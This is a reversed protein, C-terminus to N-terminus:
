KTSGNPLLEERILKHAAEKDHQSLLGIASLIYHKDIIFHAQKPLLAQPKEKNYLTYPLLAAVRKTHLLAGGTFLVTSTKRMDKGRQVLAMGTSTYVEQITGVHRQAATTIAGAALAFDLDHWADSDPVRSVESTLEDLMPLAENSHLGSVRCLWDLGTAEAIGKANHRMGIDGEVSRKIYPEPLGKYLVGAQSPMGDGVSYVDTTAGGVDFCLMEGIIEGCLEVARMVAVPTPMLIGNILSQTKSLGKAKVIRDLFIERIKEQAPEIQLTDLQPMVNKVIHCTKGHLIKECQSAVSRNGAIVIPFDVECTSLMQANHLICQKNGGDTGGTLLFIEPKAQTIEDVDDETLEYAYSKILKAGASLSAMKAAQATLEPVLGCAMMRLGGAASSCAYTKAINLTGSRQELHTLAESLGENIDTTYTTHASASGIYRGSSSDIATVKTYTSGFDVLITHEM